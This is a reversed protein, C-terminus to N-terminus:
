VKKDFKFFQRDARRRQNAWFLRVMLGDLDTEEKNEVAGRRVFSLVVPNLVTDKALLEIGISLSKVVSPTTKSEESDSVLCTM